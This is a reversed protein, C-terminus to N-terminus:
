GGLRTLKVHVVNSWLSDSGLIGTAKVRYYGWGAFESYGTNEGRYLERAKTFERSFYDNELVYGLAGPVSSWTWQRGLTQLGLSESLSTPPELVPAPLREVFSLTPKVELVNSWPTDFLLAGGTAKVRYYKTLRTALSVGQLSRTGLQNSAVHVFTTNAGKYLRISSDFSSLFSWELVYEAAGDVSTWTLNGFPGSSLAPPASTLSPLLKAFKSPVIWSTGAQNPKAAKAASALTSVEARETVPTPSVTIGKPMAGLGAILRKMAAEFYTDPVDICHFERLEGLRGPLATGTDTGLSAIDFHKAALPVIHRRCKLAHEIERRFWDNPNEARAFCGPVLVPVFLPRADIQHLIIEGFKGSPISSIDFFVDYGQGVLYDHVRGALDISLARRYSIFVKKDGNQM